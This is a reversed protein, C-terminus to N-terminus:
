DRQKGKMEKMEENLRDVEVEKSKEKEEIEKRLAENTNELESNKSQLNQITTELSSIKTESSKQIKLSAQTNQLKQNLNDITNQYSNWTSTFLNKITTAKSSLSSKETTHLTQLWHIKSQIEIIKEKQKTIAESSINYEQSELEKNKEFSDEQPNILGEYLEKNTEFFMQREEISCWNSDKFENLYSTISEIKYDEPYPSNNILVYLKSINDWLSEQFPEIKEEIEKEAIFRM